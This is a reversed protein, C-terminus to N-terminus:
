ARADRASARGKRPPNLDPRVVGWFAAAGLGGAIVGILVFRLDSAAFMVSLLSGAAIGAITYAAWGPAHRSLAAHAPLGFVIAAALGYLSVIIAFVIFGSLISGTAAYGDVIMLLTVVASGSLGAVFGAIICAGLLVLLRMMRAQM